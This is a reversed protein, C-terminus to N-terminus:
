YKKKKLNLIRIENEIQIIRKEHPKLDALSVYKGTSEDFVSTILNNDTDSNVIPDGFIGGGTILQFHSGYSAINVKNSNGNGVRYRPLLQQILDSDDASLFTKDLKGENNINWIFIDLDYKIAISVLAHIHDANGQDWESWQLKGKLGNENRLQTLNLQHYGNRTLYDLISIFMCQNFYIKPGTDLEMKFGSNQIVTLDRDINELQQIPLDSGGIKSLLDLYKKKYKLYKNRYNM